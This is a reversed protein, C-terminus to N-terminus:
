DPISDISISSSGAEQMLEIAHALVRAGDITGYAKRDIVGIPCSFAEAFKHRYLAIQPAILVVDANSKNTAIEEPSGGSHYADIVCDFQTAAAAHRM